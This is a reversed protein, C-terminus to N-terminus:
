LNKLKLSIVMPVNDSYWDYIEEGSIAVEYAKDTCLWIMEYKTPWRWYNGQNPNPSPISIWGQLLLFFEKEDNTM